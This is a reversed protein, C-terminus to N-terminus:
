LPAGRFYFMTVGFMRLSDGIFTSISFFTIQPHWIV